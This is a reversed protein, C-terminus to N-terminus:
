ASGENIPAVMKKTFYEKWYERNHNVRNNCALCLVTLNIMICNRKNYDIHHVHLNIGYVTLHEEETMGCCQCVYDDRKRISEKLKDNFEGPYESHEYPIGTGGASLSQRQKTEDTHTKGYFPNASGSRDVGFMPHNNGKWEGRMVQCCGCGCTDINHPKHSNPNHGKCYKWDSNIKVEKSKGCSKCYRIERAIFNKNKKSVSIKQGIDILRHDTLKTLGDNWSKQGPKFLTRGTNLCRGRRSDYMEKTRVYIGSPM